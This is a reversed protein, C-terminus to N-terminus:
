LLYKSEEKSMDLLDVDDKKKESKIVRGSKDTYLSIIQILSEKVIALTM